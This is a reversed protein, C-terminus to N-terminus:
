YFANLGAQDEYEALLRYLADFTALGGAEDLNMLVSLLESSGWTRFEDVGVSSESLRAARQRQHWKEGMTPEEKKVDVGEENIHAYHCSSGFPCKKDRQYFKCPKSGLVQLYTKVIEKKKEGTCFSSSPIVYNSKTRCVPCAKKNDYCAGGKERWGRICDLCFCHDCNPLLGFRRGASVIEESCVACELEETGQGEASHEFRCASGNKCGATTNFYLCIKRAVVTVGSTQNKTPESTHRNTCTDGFKCHGRLFFRCLPAPPSTNVPVDHRYWCGSGFPCAAGKQVFKCVPVTTTM